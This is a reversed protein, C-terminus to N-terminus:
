KEQDVAAQCHRCIRMKGKDTIKYGIRTAKSCGPCIVMAKCTTIPRTIDAIGGQPNGKSPKIHKKVINIGEVVIKSETPIVRVVKGTKNKDRGTIILVTDSKKINM